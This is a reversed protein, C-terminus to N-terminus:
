QNPEYEKERRELIYQLSKAMFYKLILVLTPSNSGPAISGSGTFMNLPLRLWLRLQLQYVGSFNAGSLQAKKSSASAPLFNYPDLAATTVEKVKSLSGPAPTFLYRSGLM